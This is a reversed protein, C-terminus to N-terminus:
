YTRLVYGRSIMCDKYAQFEGSKALMPNASEAGNAAECAANDSQYQSRPTAKADWYHTPKQEPTAACGSLVMVLAGSFLIGCRNVKQDM